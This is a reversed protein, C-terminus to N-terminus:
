TYIYIYIVHTSTLHIFLAILCVVFLANRPFLFFFSFDGRRGWEGSSRAVFRILTGTDAEGKLYYAFVDFVYVQGGAVEYTQPEEAVLKPHKAKYNAVVTDLDSKSNLAFGLVAMGQAGRHYDKFRNLDSLKFHSFDECKPKKDIPATNEASKPATIIYKAGLADDTSLLLSYTESGEHEATVRWGFGYLLQEAPDQGHSQYTAPDSSQGM